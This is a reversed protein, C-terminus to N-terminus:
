NGTKNIKHLFENNRLYIAAIMTVTNNAHRPFIKISLYVQIFNTQTSNAFYERALSHLSVFPEVVGIEIIMRPQPVSGAGHRLQGPQRPQRPEVVVDSVYETNRRVTIDLGPGVKLYHSWASILYILHGAVFSHAPSPM